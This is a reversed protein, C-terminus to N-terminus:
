PMGWFRLTLPAPKGFHEAVVMLALPSVTQGFPELTPVPAAM